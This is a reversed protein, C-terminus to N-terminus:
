KAVENAIKRMLKVTDPADKLYKPVYKCKTVDVNFLKATWVLAQLYEGKRNLHFADGDLWIKGDKLTKFKNVGVVDYANSDKGEDNVYKVPLDKRFRQVAEGTKIVDLGHNAAFKGYASELKEFMQNQDIGWGGLRRDWPTYSWTQQVYVKAQPACKRIMELLKTGHPEYSKEQWSQHSGQQVTVIDWKDAKLMREINSHTRLHGHKNKIQVLADKFPEEGKKCSVYSWTIYYPNSDPKKLNAAHRDLTCGGIYLSCFDLPCGLDKAVKPMEKGVCISFSNGIALVKLPKERKPAANSTAGIFAAAVAFVTTIVRASVKMKQEQENIKKLRM